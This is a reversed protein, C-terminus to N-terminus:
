ARNVIFNFAIEQVEISSNSHSHCRLCSTVPAHEHSLSPAFRHLIDNAFGNFQDVLVKVGYRAAEFDIEIYSVYVLADPLPYIGIPIGNYVSCLDGL